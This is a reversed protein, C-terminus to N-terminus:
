KRIRPVVFALFAAFLWWAVLNLVACLLGYQYSPMLYYPVFGMVGLVLSIIVHSKKVPPNM